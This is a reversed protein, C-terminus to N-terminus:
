LTFENNSQLILTKVLEREVDEMPNQMDELNGKLIQVKPDETTEM